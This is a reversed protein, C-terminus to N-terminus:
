KLNKTKKVERKKMANLLLHRNDRLLLLNINQFFLITLSFHKKIKNNKINKLIVSQRLTNSKCTCEHTMPFDAPLSDVGASCTSSFIAADQERCGRICCPM